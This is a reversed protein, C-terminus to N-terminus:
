DGLEVPALLEDKPLWIPEGRSVDDGFLAVGLGGRCFVIRMRTMLKWLMLASFVGNQNRRVSHLGSIIIPLSVHSAGPM